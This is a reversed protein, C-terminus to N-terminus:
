EGRMRSESANPSDVKAQLRPFVSAAGLMGSVVIFTEAPIGYRFDYSVTLVPVLYFAFATLGFLMSGFRLLPEGKIIGVFSLGLLVLIPLGSVRMVNQYMALADKGHLRVKTGRYQKALADVVVKEVNGDRWGFSLIGPSQGAYEWNSTSWPEVYRLLDV